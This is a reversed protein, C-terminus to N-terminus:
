PNVPTANAGVLEPFTLILHNLLAVPAIEVGTTEVKLETLVFMFLISCMSQLSAVVVLLPIWQTKM